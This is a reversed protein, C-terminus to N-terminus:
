NAIPKTSPSLTRSPEVSISALAINCTKLSQYDSIVSERKRRAPRDARGDAAPNGDRARAGLRSVVSLLLDQGDKVITRSKDKGREDYILVGCNTCKVYEEIYLRNPAFRM